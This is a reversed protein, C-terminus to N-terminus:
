VCKRSVVVTDGGVDLMATMIKFHIHTEKINDYCFSFNIVASVHGSGINLCTIQKKEWAPRKLPRASVCKFAAAM